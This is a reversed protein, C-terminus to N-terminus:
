GEEAGAVAVVEGAAAVAEWVAAVGVGEVVVVVVVTTDGHAASTGARAAEATLAARRPMTVGHPRTSTDQVTAAPYGAEAGTGPLARFPRPAGRHAPRPTGPPLQGAVPPVGRFAPARASPRYRDAAKPSPAHFPRAPQGASPGVDPAGATEGSPPREPPARTRKRCERWGAPRRTGAPSANVM